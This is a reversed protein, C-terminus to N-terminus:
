ITNPKVSSLLSKMLFETRKFKQGQREIKLRGSYGHYATFVFADFRVAVFLDRTVYGAKIEPTDQVVTVVRYDQGAGYADSLVGGVASRAFREDHSNKLENLFSKFKIQKLATEDFERMLSLHIVDCGKARTDAQFAGSNYTKPLEEFRTVVLVDEQDKDDSEFTEYGAGYPIRILFDHNVLVIKGDQPVGFM